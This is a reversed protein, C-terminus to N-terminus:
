SCFVKFLIFCILLIIIFLIIINYAYPLKANTKLIRHIIIKNSVIEDKENKFYTSGKPIICEVLTINKHNASIANYDEIAKDLHFYSHFGRFISWECKFPHEKIELSPEIYEQNYIYNAWMFFSHCKLPTIYVVIKYVILPHLAIRKLPNYKSSWCM